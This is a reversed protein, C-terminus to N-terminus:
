GDAVGTTRVHLNSALRVNKDALNIPHIQLGDFHIVLLKVVTFCVHCIWDISFDLDLVVLRSTAQVTCYWTQDDKHHYDDEDILVTHLLRAPM